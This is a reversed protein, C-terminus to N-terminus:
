KNEGLTDLLEGLRNYIADKHMNAIGSRLGTLFGKTYTLKDNLKLWESLEVEITTGRRTPDATGKEM